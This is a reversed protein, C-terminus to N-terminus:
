LLKFLREDISFALLNMELEGLVMELYLFLLERM